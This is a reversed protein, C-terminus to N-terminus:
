GNPEGAKNAGKSNSKKIKSKAVKKGKGGASETESLKAFPNESAGKDGAKKAQGKVAKQSFMKELKKTAM